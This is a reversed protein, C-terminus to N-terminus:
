KVLAEPTLEGRYALHAPGKRQVASVAGDAHGFDSQFVLSRGPHISGSQM